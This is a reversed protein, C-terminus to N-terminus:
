YTVTITLIGAAIWYVCKRMDGHYLWVVAAVLDLVIMITPFLKPSIM